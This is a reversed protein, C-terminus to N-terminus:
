KACPTQGNASQKIIPDVAAGDLSRSAELESALRHVKAQHASLIIFAMRRAWEVLLEAAQEDGGSLRAATELARQRDKYTLWEDDDRVGALTESVYGGCSAILCDGCRARRGDFLVKEAGSNNESYRRPINSDNGRIHAKEM